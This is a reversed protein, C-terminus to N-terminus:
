QSGPNRSEETPIKGLREDLLLYGTGDYTGSVTLTTQCVELLREGLDDCVYEVERRITELRLNLGDDLRVVYTVDWMGRRHFVDVDTLLIGHQGKM